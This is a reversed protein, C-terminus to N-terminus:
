ADELVRERLIAALEALLATATPLPSAHAAARHLAVGDCRYVAGPTDEFPAAPIAVEADADAAAAGLVVRPIRALHATAAASLPLSPPSEDMGLMLAADAEGRALLAEATFQGPGYRPYGRGFHVAFPYGAQWTLVAEAGAANGPARLGLVRLRRGPATGDRALAFLADARLPDRRPPPPDGDFLVVGYRAASLERMLLDLAGTPLPRSAAPPELRRGRLRTRLAWITEVEVETPLAVRADASSPGTADGVDVALVRPRGPAGAAAAARAHAGPEEGADGAAHREGAASPAGGRPGRGVYRDFFGPEAADPDMGWCVVLDARSRLEGLTATGSGRRQLALIAPAHAASDGTDVAGRLLEAVEVAHRQADVVLRSLGLVLPLRAGQLLEAAAALAAAVPAPEANVRATAEGTDAATM